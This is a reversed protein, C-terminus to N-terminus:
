IFLELGDYSPFVNNPLEKEWDRTLGMKHSLHTIYAKQPKVQEILSLAQGLSFHSHHIEKRLANVVLIKVDKLFAINKDNIYSADTIFAFDGIRYGLIPLNGHMVQIPQILQGGAEFVGCDEIRNLIARPAGPYHNKSFVYGFRAELEDSVRPLAYVPMDVKQAFNFPRIDDLGIIHDNHEHTYLIADVRTVKSRLMQYRLDPGTDILINTTGEEVLVGSRLRSDRPDNSKCVACDCGVVPIGQSTGTGLLTIKL